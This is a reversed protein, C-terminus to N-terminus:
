MAVRLTELSGIKRAYFILRSSFVDQLNRVQLGHFMAGFDAFSLACDRPEIANKAIRDCIVVPPGPCTGSSIFSEGRFRRHTILRLKRIRNTGTNSIHNVIEFTLVAGRNFLNVEPTDGYLGKCLRLLNRGVISRYAQVSRPFGDCLHQRRDATGTGLV